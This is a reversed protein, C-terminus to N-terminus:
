STEKVIRLMAHTAVPEDNWGYWQGDVRYSVKGQDLVSVNSYPEREVKVVQGDIVAHDNPCPTLDRSSLWAVFEDRCHTALISLMDTMGVPISGTVREYKRALAQVADTSM